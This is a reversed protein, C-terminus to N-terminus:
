PELPHSIQTSLLTEIEEAPLPRHYFYGQILDCGNKVIFDRQLADEVGEAILTLNLSKGLAIIAKTIAADDEDDPIDKVFSQDIKLKDLPLKKLYSLSSYGTGFDDIAIEIGMEHIKNLKEISAEPNQMVQGETIELELWTTKFHMEAMTYFLTSLFDEKELQKIALNLSLRGPNLGMKYWKVFQEFAQKMVLKDIGIILNSEEAIPIFKQPSVIGLHPHKWRVLAEMGVIIDTKPNIQPQYYVVFQEEKIATRLSSEMVVREFAVATMEPSYFQFNNRGEDKAKYMAIDAYKILNSETTADDPYISIGISSTVHLDHADICIPSNLADIIKQAVTSADQISAIDRLIVTFEDGGLRSLTDEERLVKKLRKATQILVKDGIDHGLTDNIKKFQDLDIFLLSFKQKNRKAHIICQTLRDQFLTRNPLNTLTDHHAQHRLKRTQEALLKQTEKQKSIDQIYGIYGDILGNDDKLVSLSIDCIINKGDKRKMYGEITLKAEKDLTRFIDYLDREEDSHFVELIHHGIIEGADYGLLTTSGNNWSTIKGERDTSIVSDHIHELIKAQKKYELTLEVEHTIDMDFIVFAKEGKYEIVHIYSQVHYMSGDKRRHTTQNLIHQTELLQTHLKHIEEEHLYPNIERVNMTLLEESTYGLARSAGQNVYLYNLTELHVIYIENSSRELINSLEQAQQQLKVETTIDLTSGVLKIPKGDADYITQGHISFHAIEGTEKKLRCTIHTVNGSEIGEKVKQQVMPLDEPIVHSFFLEFTPEVEGPEYGYNRYSQDSWISKHTILDVEWSGMGSVEEVKKLSNERAKLKQLATKIDDNEIDIPM